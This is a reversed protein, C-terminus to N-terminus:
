HQTASQPTIEESEGARMRNATCSPCGCPIGDIVTLTAIGIRVASEEMDIGKFPSAEGLERNATAAIAGLLSTALVILDRNDLSMRQIIQVVAHLPSTAHIELVDPGDNQSNM